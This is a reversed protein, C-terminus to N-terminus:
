KGSTGKGKLMVMSTSRVASNDNITFTGTQGSVSIPMFRLTFHCESGPALSEDASCTSKIPDVIFPGSIEFSEIVVPADQRSTRPNFLVVQEGRSHKGMATNPFDIRRPTVRLKAESTTVPGFEAAGVDVIAGDGAKGEVIRPNGYYDTASFGAESNLGVDIAPSGSTLHFDGGGSDVFLPDAAFNGSTGAIDGCNAFATGLGFVDNNGFTPPINSRTTDCFVVNQTSPALLLNNYLAATSPFGDAYIAAGKAQTASNGFITNNILTPGTSSFPVGFYVGAGIDSSNNIILNQEVLAASDNFMAIGGGSAVPGASFVGSAQNDSILNNMIVPTGAAFLSIGGGDGSTWSNHSIVNSLVMAAGAGGLEIGGGGVGGSCGSQSNNTITNSQITAASFQVAIGGGGSCASNGTITNGSITPSSDHVLIGGGDGLNDNVGGTITFGSLTSAPTEGSSFTVVPGVGKGNITTKAPGSASAVSIAKGKFDIRESYTGAAVVVKDGDSAADIAGQITAQDGPVNITAAWAGAGWFAMGSAGVICGLVALRFRGWTM